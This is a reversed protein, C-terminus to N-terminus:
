LLSRLGKSITYLVDSAGEAALRKTCLSKDPLAECDLLSSNPTPYFVLFPTDMM